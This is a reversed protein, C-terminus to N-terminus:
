LEAPLAARFQRVARTWLMTVAGVSRGMVRAVEPFSRGDLNRLFLVERYDDPLAALTDAAIM